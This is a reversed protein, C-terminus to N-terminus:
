EQPFKQIESQNGKGHKQVAEERIDISPHM